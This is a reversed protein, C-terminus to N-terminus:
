VVGRRSLEQAIAQANARAQKGVGIYSYGPAEIDLQECVHYSLSLTDVGEGAGEATTVFGYKERAEERTEWTLILDHSFPITLTECLLRATAVALIGHGSQLLELAETKNM